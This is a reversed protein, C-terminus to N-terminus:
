HFFWDSESMWDQSDAMSCVSSNSNLRFHAASTTDLDTAADGLTQLSKSELKMLHGAGELQDARGKCISEATLLQSNLGPRLLQMRQALQTLSLSQAEAAQKVQRAVEKNRRSNRARPAADLALSNFLSASKSVFVDDGRSNRASPAADFALSNLLSRPRPVLVDEVSTELSSRRQQTFANISDAPPAHSPLRRLHPHGAGDLGLSEFATASAPTCGGRKLYCNKRFSKTTQAECRQTKSHNHMWKQKQQQPYGQLQLVSTTECNCPQVQTRAPNPSKAAKARMPERLLAKHCAGDLAMSGSVLKSASSMAGRRLYPMSISTVTGERQQGM